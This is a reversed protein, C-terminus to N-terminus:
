FQHCQQWPLATQINRKEKAPIGIGTDSVKVKWSDKTETVCVSVHGYDPTYKLANSIINKLISDMKEKDFWVKTEKFNSEYTFDINKTASYSHFGNCLNQMYTNLEFEAIYLKPSYVETHEFNILNTTLRLLADVNKLATKMCNLGSATLQAKESLEELPAKILTLPTRM